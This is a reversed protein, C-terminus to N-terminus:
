FFYHYLFLSVTFSMATSKDKLLSELYKKDTYFDKLLKRTTKENKPTKQIKQKKEQMLYEVAAIPQKRKGPYANPFSTLM